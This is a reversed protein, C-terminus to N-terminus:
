PANFFFVEDQWDTGRGGRRRACRHEVFPIARGDNAFSENMIMMYDAAGLLDTKKWPNQFRGDRQLLHQGARTARSATTIMVVGNAGRAGYIATAAADKLVEVSAIDNPNLTISRASRCATSSM